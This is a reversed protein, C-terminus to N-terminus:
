EFKFMVAETSHKKVLSGNYPFGPSPIRVELEYAYLDDQGSEVLKASGQLSAKWKTVLLAVTCLVLVSRFIGVLSDAMQSTELIVVDM